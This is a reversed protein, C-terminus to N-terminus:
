ARKKKIRKLRFIDEREREDLTRGITAVDRRLRPLLYEELANIRRSVKRVEEGLRLLNQEAPAYRLLQEVFGEAAEAAESIHASTDFAGLEREAPPRVLGSSEVDVM